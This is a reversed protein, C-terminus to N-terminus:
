RLRSKTQADFIPTVNREQGVAGPIFFLNRHAFYQRTKLSSRAPSFGTPNASTSVLPKGFARSLQSAVPHSTVRVAITEHQGRLWVPVTLSAKILWTSPGPWTKLVSGLETLDTIDIYPALLEIDSAILILGKDVSRNKLQLITRIAPINDPDCGLGFVAETPYAIVGNNKLHRIASRLKHPSIM